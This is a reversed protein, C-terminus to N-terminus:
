GAPKELLVLGDLKPDGSWDFVQHSLVKLGMRDAFYRVVDVNGFNRWHRNEQYQGEPNEGNNSVHLLARGGPTLVRRVERVYELVDLLEFHVMADYCFLATQSADAVGPLNNGANCIFRLHAEAAFRTQCAEINSQNIDVLTIAGAQRLIQASHRGHGCALELVTTLDLQHFQTLFLSDEAWFTAIWTEAQDYYANNQWDAKIAGRHGSLRDEM